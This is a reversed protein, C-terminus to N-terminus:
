QSLEILRLPILCGDENIQLVIDERENKSNLQNDEIPEKLLCEIQEFIGEEYASIGNKYTQDVYKLLMFEAIIKWDERNIAVYAWFRQYLYEVKQYAVKEYDFEGKIREWYKERTMRERDKTTRGAEQNSNIDQKVQKAIDDDSLNIMCSFITLEKEARLVTGIPINIKEIQEKIHERGKNNLSSYGLFFSFCDENISQYYKIHEVLRYCDQIKLDKDFFWEKIKEMQKKAVYNLERLELNLEYEDWKEEDNEWYDEGDEGNNYYHYEILCKHFGRKYQDTEPELSGPKLSFYEELKEKEEKEIRREGNLMKLVSTKSSNLIEALMRTSYKSKKVKGNEVKEKEKARKIHHKLLENENRQEVKSRCEAKGMECAEIFGIKNLKM